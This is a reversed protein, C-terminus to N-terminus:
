VGSVVGERRWMRVKVGRKARMTVTHELEMSFGEGAEFEWGRVVEAVVFKTQFVGLKEGVCRRPGAGFPVFTYQADPHHSVKEIPSSSDKLWREPLFELPRPYHDPHTHIGLANWMVGQGKSLFQRATAGTPLQWELTRDESLERFLVPLPPRIRLTEKLVADLYPLRDLSEYTVEGKLTDLEARLKLLVHPHTTLYAFIWTLLASTTDRGAFLFTMLHKVVERDNNLLFHPVTDRTKDNNRRRIFEALVCRDDEAVGNTEYERLRELVVGELMKMNREYERVAPTKLFEWYHTFKVIFRWMLHDAVQCWAHVLTTDGTLSRPDVGCILLTIIDFNLSDFTEQLDITQPTTSNPKPKSHLALHTHLTQIRTRIIETYGKVVATHFFPGFFHRAERWDDGNPMLALGGAIPNFIESLKKNRDFAKFDTVLMKKILGPEMVIVGRLGPMFLKVVKGLRGMAEPETGHLVMKDMPHNYFHGVFPWPKRFPAEDPQGPPTYERLLFESALYLALLTLLPLVFVFWGTPPTPLHDLITLLLTQLM